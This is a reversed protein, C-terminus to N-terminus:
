ATKNSRDKISILPKRTRLSLVRETKPQSTSAEEQEWRDIEDLVTPLVKVFGKTIFSLHLLNHGNIRLCVQRVNDSMPLRRESFTLNRKDEYMGQPDLLQIMDLTAYISYVRTFFADRALHSTAKQIPCALLILETIAFDVDPDKVKAVNLAVNGGHSHTILRIEPTIGYRIRYDSVLKKIEIFLLRAQRERLSFDLEGPWGFVYFHEQGFRVSDYDSLTQTLTKIRYYDPLDGIKHLGDPAGHVFEALPRIIHSGHIWITITPQAKDSPLPSSKRPTAYARRIVKAPQTNKAPTGKHCGSLTAL